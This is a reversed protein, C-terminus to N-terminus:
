EWWKDAKYQKSITQLFETKTVQPLSLTLDTQYAQSIEVLYQYPPPLGAFQMGWLSIGKLLFEKKVDM